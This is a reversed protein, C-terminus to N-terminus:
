CESLHILCPVNQHFLEIQCFFLYRAMGVSSDSSDSFILELVTLEPVQGWGSDGTAQVFIVTARGPFFCQSSFFQPLPLVILVLGYCSPVKIKTIPEM